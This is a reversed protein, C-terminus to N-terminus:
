RLKPSDIEPRRTYEWLSIFATSSRLLMARFHDCQYYQEYNAFHIEENKQLYVERLTEEVRFLCIKKM